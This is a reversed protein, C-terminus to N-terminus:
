LQVENLINYCFLFACIKKLSSSNIAPQLCFLSKKMLNHRFVLAISRLSKVDVINIM